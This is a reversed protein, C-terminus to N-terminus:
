REVQQEHMTKFGNGSVPKDGRGKAVVQAVSGKGDGFYQDATGIFNMTPIDM